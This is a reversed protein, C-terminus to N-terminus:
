RHLVTRTTLGQADWSFTTNTAPTAVHTPASGQTTRTDQSTPKKVAQGFFTIKM